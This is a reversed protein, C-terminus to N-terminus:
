PRSRRTPPTARGSQAPAFVRACGAERSPSRRDGSRQGAGIGARAGAPRASRDLRGASGQPLPARDRAGAARARTRGDPEGALRADDNLEKFSRGQLKVEQTLATMPRGCPTIRPRGARSGARGDGTLAALIEAEIGRPPEEAALAGDLWEEFRRLIEERSMGATVKREPGGAVAAARRVPAAPAKLEIVSVLPAGPDVALLRDRMRRRPDRLSDYADRIREFEEPSRDPPHEKVKRVYAARIEEEGADPGVGLM